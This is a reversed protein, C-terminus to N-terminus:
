LLSRTKRRCTSSEEDGWYNIVDLFMWSDGNYEERKMTEKLDDQDAQDLLFPFVTNPMGDRWSFVLGGAYIEPTIAPHEHLEEVIYKIGREAGQVFAVQIAGNKLNRGNFLRKALANILPIVSDHKKLHVSQLCGM